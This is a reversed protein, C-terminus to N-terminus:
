SLAPRLREMAENLVAPSRCYCIRLSSEAGPGFFIGPALGVRTKDLIELCAARSDPMGDIEFFAYMAAKPRPGALRVRGMSELASCVIQAGQACYANMQAVFPEGHRVAAAGGHQLFTTTGSSTYQVLMALTPGLSPPHVLWGLRWGTMAWSKSFSNIVLVRDEPDAITLISPGAVQAYVLRHYVEDALLWVGTERSLDLLQQQVELPLMAGTPNGPSAFFIARTRADCAARVKTVDLTWGEPGLDMRVSRVQGGALKVMGGLNPWVPDIVVVNDGAGVLLQVALMIAQMGSAAITFRDPALALPYLRNYYDGLAERLLPIGNQHAYFTHGDRIAQHLADGIFAPTALDGEGFWLPLVKSDPDFAQNAINSINELSIGAIQARIDHLAPRREAQPIPAQALATV